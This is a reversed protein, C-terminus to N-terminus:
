AEVLVSGGEDHAPQGEGWEWGWNLGWNGYTVATRPETHALAELKHVAEHTIRRSTSNPARM